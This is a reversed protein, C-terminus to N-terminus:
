VVTVYRPTCRSLVSDIFYSMQQRQQVINRANLLIVDIRRNRDLLEVSFSTTDMIVDHLAIKAPTALSCNAHMCIIWFM